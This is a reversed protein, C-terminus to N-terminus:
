LFPLYQHARIREKFAICITYHFNLIFDNKVYVLVLRTMRLTKESAKKSTKYADSGVTMGTANGVPKSKVARGTGRDRGYIIRGLGCVCM